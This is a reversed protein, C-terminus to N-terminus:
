KSIFFHLILFLIYSILHELSQIQRTNPANNNTLCSEATKLNVRTEILFYSGQGKAM